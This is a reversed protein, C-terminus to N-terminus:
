KHRKHNTKTQAPATSPRRGSLSCTAGIRLGCALGILHALPVPLMEPTQVFVAAGSTLEIAMKAAFLALMLAPLTAARWNSEAAADRLWLAALLGFLASDLGSLGRYFALDPRFIQVGLAIALSSVLVCQATARRSQKECLAGLIVLGLLDWLLHDASWHTLHCTLLQWIMRVGSASRDWQLLPAIGSAAILIAAAALTITLLPLSAAKLWWAPTVPPPDQRLGTQSVALRDVMMDLAFLIM